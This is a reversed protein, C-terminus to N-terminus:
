CPWGWEILEYVASIALCVCVVMFERWRPGNVVDLRVILERALIAPVFGQRLPRAQRLQQAGLPVSREGVPRAPSGCLHLPRRGHSNRQPDAGPRLRAATLPFSRHTAALVGLGILAPSVELIWTLYDKPRVASWALVGFFIVLWALVRARSRPKAVGSLRRGACRRASRAAEVTNGEPDESTCPGATAARATAPDGARTVRRGPEAADCPGRSRRLRLGCASIIMNRGRRRRFRQAPCNAGEVAVIDILSRGARLQVM